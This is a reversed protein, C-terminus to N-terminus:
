EARAGSRRVTAAWRIREATLYAELEAGTMPMPETNRQRLMALYAPSAHVAAMELRLRAVVPAPTAAPAYVATWSPAHMDPLGAEVLSPVDPLDPSRERSTVGLAQITGARILPLATAISDFLMNVQGGVLDSMAQPSGRYPVHLLQIGAEACFLEGSLHTLSGNGSSAYTLAGPRAKAAAILGALTPDPLTRPNVVLVNPLAGLMGLPVFDADPDYGLRQYLAKAVGMVAAGAALLTHGDPAARAVFEAGINGGAGPRNDVVVPQGLRPSLNDAMARALIDSIGGAPFPVVIRVPRSPFAEGQAHALRPSALGPLTAALLVHRRGIM